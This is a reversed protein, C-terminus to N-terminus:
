LEGITLSPLLELYSQSSGVFKESARKVLNVEDNEYKFVRAEASYSYRLRQNPSCEHGFVPQCNSWKLAKNIDSCTLRSRNGHKMFKRAKDIIQRVRLSADESITTAVENSIEPIGSAEAMLKISDTTFCSYKM